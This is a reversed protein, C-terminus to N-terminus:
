HLTSSQQYQSPWTACPTVSGGGKGRYMLRAFSAAAVPWPMQLTAADLLLGCSGGVATCCVCGQALSPAHLRLSSSSLAVSPEILLRAM